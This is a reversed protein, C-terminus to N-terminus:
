IRDLKPLNRQNGKDWCCIQFSLWKQRTLLLSLLYNKKRVSTIQFSWVASSHLSLRLVVPAGSAGGAPARILPDVRRREAVRRSAAPWFTQAVARLIPNPFCRIEIESWIKIITARNSRPSALCRSAVSIAKGWPFLDGNTQLSNCCM